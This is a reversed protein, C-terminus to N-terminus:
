APIQLLCLIPRNKERFLVSLPLYSPPQPSYMNARLVRARAVQKGEANISTRRNTTHQRQEREITEISEEKNTMEKKDVCFLPDRVIVKGIEEGGPSTGTKPRKTM